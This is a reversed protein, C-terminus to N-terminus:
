HVPQHVFKQFTSVQYYCDSPSCTPNAISFTSMLCTLSCYFYPHLPHASLLSFSCAMIYCRPFYTMCLFDKFHKSCITFLLQFSQIHRDFDNPPRTLTLESLIRTEDYPLVSTCFKSWYSVPVCTPEEPILSRHIDLNVASHIPFQSILLSISFLYNM